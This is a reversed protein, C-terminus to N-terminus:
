EPVIFLTILSLDGRPVAFGIVLLGLSGIVVM